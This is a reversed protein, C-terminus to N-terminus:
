YMKLSEERPEQTHLCRDKDAGQSRLKMQLWSVFTKPFRFGVCDICNTPGPAMRNKIEALVDVQDFNITDAEYVGKARSLRFENHDIQIIHEAGRIRAQCGASLGVPGAGWVSVKSGQKM